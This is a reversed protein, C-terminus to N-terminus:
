VPLSLQYCQLSVGDFFRRPLGPYEQQPQSHPITENIPDRPQGDQTLPVASWRSSTPLLKRLRRLFVPQQLERTPLPRPLRPPFSIVPSAAPNRRVNARRRTADSNLLDRLTSNQSTTTNDEPALCISALVDPPTNCIFIENENEFSTTYALQRSDPSLTIIYPNLNHFSALLQRSEFAWLKITNDHSTSALLAGDFSLALGLIVKTHGQFPTGLTELTSADFEYITTASAGGREDVDFTFAALITEKNTWFVPANTVYGGQSKGIRRDLKQTQVDWVELCSGVHSNMALKKSDRSFRIAGVWHASKFPGAVLKGTDLSWIKATNDDSVSVLLTNDESIDICYTAQSYGEFTKVMGTEVECAKLEGRKEDGGATIVWRGDKSVAVAHVAWERVDRVDEIEKGAQLDWRRSTKDWGGSVMQEGDPSYCISIIGMNHGELTMVPPLIMKPAAAAPQTSLTSAM